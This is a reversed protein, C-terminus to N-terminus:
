MSGAADLMKKSCRMLVELYYANEAKTLDKEKIADMKKEYDSLKSMYKAYEALWAMDGYDAKKMFECYTDIFAEYSDIAEKVDPRIANNDVKEPEPAPETAPAPEPAPEPQPEPAPIPEPSPEPQSAPEPAPAPTPEPAPAPTPEASPAPAAASASSAPEKAESSAAPPTTTENPKETETLNNAQSQYYSSASRGCGTFVLATMVAALMVSTIKRKMM